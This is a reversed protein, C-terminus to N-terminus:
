PKVKRAKKPIRLKPIPPKKGIKVKPKKRTKKKIPKKQRDPLPHSPSGFSLTSVSADRDAQKILSCDTLRNLEEKSKRLSDVMNSTFKYVVSVQRKAEPIVGFIGCIDKHFKRLAVPDDMTGTREGQPWGTARQAKAEERLKEIAADRESLMLRLASISGRESDLAKQLQEVRPDLHAQRDREVMLDAGLHNVYERMTRLALSQNYIVEDVEDIEKDNWSM